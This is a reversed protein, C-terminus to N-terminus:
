LRGKPFARSVLGDLEDVYVDVIKARAEDIAPYLIRGEESRPPFQRYRGSSGWDVGGFWVVRASGAAVYARSQSALPRITAIGASGLRSIGGALNPWAGGAKKRAIPVVVEAARRNAATLDRQLGIRRLERRLDRLDTDIVRLGVSM